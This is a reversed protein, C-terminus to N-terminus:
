ESANEEEKYTKDMTDIEPKIGECLLKTTGNSTVGLVQINPWRCAESIRSYIQTAAFDCFVPFFGQDDIIHIAVYPNDEFVRIHPGREDPHNGSTFVCGNSVNIRLQDCYKSLLTVRRNFTVIDGGFSVSFKKIGGDILYKSIAKLVIGKMLGTFDQPSSYNVFKLIDEPLLRGSGDITVIRECLEVINSKSYDFRGHRSPFTKEVANISERVHEVFNGEPLDEDLSISIDSTWFKDMFKMM